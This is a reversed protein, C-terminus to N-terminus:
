AIEVVATILRITISDGEGKSGATRKFLSSSRRGVSLERCEGRLWYRHTLPFPSLM